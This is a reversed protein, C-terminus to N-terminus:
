DVDILTSSPSSVYLLLIILGQSMSQTPTGSLTFSCVWLNHWACLDLVAFSSPKEREVTEQAYWSHDVEWLVDLWSTVVILLMPTLM